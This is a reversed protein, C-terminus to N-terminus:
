IWFKPSAGDDRELSAADEFNQIHSVVTNKVVIKKIRSWHIQNHQLLKM